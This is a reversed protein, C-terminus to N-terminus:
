IWKTEDDCRICFLCFFCARKEPLMHKSLEDRRSGGGIGHLLGLVVPYLYLLKSALCSKQARKPKRLLFEKKQELWISLYLSALLPDVYPIMSLLDDMWFVNRWGHLCSRTVMLSICPGASKSKSVVIHAPATVVHRSHLIMLIEFFAVM